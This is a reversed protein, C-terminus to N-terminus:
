KKRYFYYGYVASVAIVFVTGAGALLELERTIMYAILLFFLLAITCLTLIERMRTESDKSVSKGKANRRHYTQRGNKRPVPVHNSTDKTPLLAANDPAPLVSNEKGLLSLPATNDQPSSATCDNTGETLDLSNEKSVNDM